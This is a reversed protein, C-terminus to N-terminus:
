THHKGVEVGFCYAGLHFLIRGVVRQYIMMVHGNSNWWFDTAVPSERRYPRLLGKGALVCRPCSHFWLLFGGCYPNTSLVTDWLTQARRVTQIRRPLRHCLYLSRMYEEGVSLYRAVLRLSGGKNKLSDWSPGTSSWPVLFVLWVLVVSCFNQINFQGQFWLGCFFLDLSM